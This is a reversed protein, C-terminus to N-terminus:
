KEKPHAFRQQNLYGDKAVFWDIKRKSRKQLNKM